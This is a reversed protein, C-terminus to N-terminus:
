GVGLLPFFQVNHGVAAVAPTRMAYVSRGPYIIRPHPQVLAGSITAAGMKPNVNDRLLPEYLALSDPMYSPAYGSALASIEGATLIRNWVGVEAIMGVGVRTLTDRNGITWANATSSQTGVPATIENVTAASGNLYMAPDNSTASGDYTVIVSQWTDLTLDESSEWEGSTTSFSALLEIRYFPVSAADINLQLAGSQRVLRRTVTNENTPYYWAAITVPNLSGTYATTIIDNTGSTGYTAGFGRAM